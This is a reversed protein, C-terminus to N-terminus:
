KPWRGRRQLALQAAGRMQIAAHYIMAPDRDHWEFEAIKELVTLLSEIESLAEPWGTRAKVMFQADPHDVDVIHWPNHSEPRVMVESGDLLFGDRGFVPQAGQFGWRAFTMVTDRLPTGLSQIMVEPHLMNGCNGCWRWPGPTAADIIDRDRQIREPTFPDPM